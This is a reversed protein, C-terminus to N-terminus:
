SNSLRKKLRLRGCRDLYWRDWPCSRCRRTDCNVYFQSNDVGIKVLNKIQDLALKTPPADQKSLGGNFLAQIGEHFFWEEAEEVRGERSLYNYYEKASMERPRIVIKGKARQEEIRIMAVLDTFKIFYRKSSFIQVNGKSNKQIVIAAECGHPSRAFKAVQEADSIITVLNLSKLGIQIKEIQAKKEFEEKTTIFFEKQREYYAKIIEVIQAFVKKPDNPWKHNLVQTSWALDFPQSSNIDTRLAFGLIKEVLPDEELGLKEAVLTTTCENERRAKRIGPHEDFRGGGIGVMLVGQVEYDQSSEKIDTEGWFQIEANSIGPFDKEGFEQLLFIAAIEDFHPRKHTAIIEFTAM